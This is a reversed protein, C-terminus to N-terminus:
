AAGALRAADKIRLEGSILKPLLTDRLEGLTRSENCRSFIAGVVPSALREFAELVKASPNLVALARVANSNLGPIAVGTGRTRMEDM